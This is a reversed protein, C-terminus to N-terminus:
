ERSTKPIAFLHACVRETELLSPHEMYCWFARQHANRMSEFEGAIDLHCEEGAAILASTGKSESLKHIQRFARHVQRHETGPLAEICDLVPQVGSENLKGWEFQAFGPFNSLFQQLLATPVKEVVVRPNYPQSM